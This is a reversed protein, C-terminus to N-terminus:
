DLPWKSLPVYLEKCSSISGWIEGKGEAGSSIQGLLWIIVLFIVNSERKWTINIRVAMINGEGRLLKINKGMMRSMSIVLFKICGQLKM